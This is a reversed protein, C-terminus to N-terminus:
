VFRPTQNIFTTGDPDQFVSMGIGTPTSQLQLVGELLKIKSGCPLCGDVETSRRTPEGIAKELV